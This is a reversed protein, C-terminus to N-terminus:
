ILNSIIYKLKKEVVDNASTPKSIKLYTIFVGCIDAKGNEKLQKVSQKINNDSSLKFFIRSIYEVIELDEYFELFICNLIEIFFINEDIPIINKIPLIDALYSLSKKINNYPGNLNQKLNFYIYDINQKNENSDIENSSIENSYIENLITNQFPIKHKMSFKTSFIDSYKNIINSILLNCFDCFLISCGYLKQFVLIGKDNESLRFKINGITGNQM